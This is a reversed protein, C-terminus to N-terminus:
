KSILGMHECIYAWRYLAVSEVEEIARRVEVYTRRHRSGRWSDPTICLVDYPKDIGYNWCTFYARALWVASQVDITQEMSSIIYQQAVQRYELSPHAKCNIAAIEDQNLNLLVKCLQAQRWGYENILEKSYQAKRSETAHVENAWQAWSPKRKVTDKGRSDLVTYTGSSRKLLQEGKACRTQLDALVNGEIGTHHCLARGVVDRFYGVLQLDVPPMTKPTQVAANM